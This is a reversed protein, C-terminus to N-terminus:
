ILTPKPPTETLFQYLPLLTCHLIYSLNHFVHQGPHTLTHAHVSAHFSARARETLPHLPTSFPHYSPALCPIEVDTGREGRLHGFGSMIVTLWMGCKEQPPLRLTTHKSM